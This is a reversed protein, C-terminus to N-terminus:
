LDAVGDEHDPRGRATSTSSGDPVPRSKRYSSSRGSYSHTAQTGSDSLSLGVALLVSAAASALMSPRARESHRVSVM